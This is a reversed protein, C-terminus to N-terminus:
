NKFQLHLLSLISHFQPTAPFYNLVDSVPLFDTHSFFINDLAETRDPSIQFQQGNSSHYTLGFVKRVSGEKNM